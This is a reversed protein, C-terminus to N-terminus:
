SFGLFSFKAFLLTTMIKKYSEKAHDCAYDGSQNGVKKNM